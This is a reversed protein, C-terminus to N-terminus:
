HIDEFAYRDFDPMLDPPPPGLPLDVPIKSLRKSKTASSSCQSAYSVDRVPPTAALLDSLSANSNFSECIDSSSMQSNCESTQAQREHMVSPSLAALVYQEAESWREASINCSSSMTSNRRDMFSERSEHRLDLSPMRSASSVASRFRTRLESVVSYAADVSSPLRMQSLSRAPTTPPEDVMARLRQLYFLM